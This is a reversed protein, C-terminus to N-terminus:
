LLEADGDKYVFQNRKTEIIESLKLNKVDNYTWQNYFFDIHQFLKRQENEEILKILVSESSFSSIWYPLITIRNIRRANGQQQGQNSISKNREVM